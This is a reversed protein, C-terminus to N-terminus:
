GRLSELQSWSRGCGILERLQGEPLQDPQRGEPLEWERVACAGRLRAVARGRGARGAADGDLLLAVGAAFREGLLRAPQEYLDTGMLAVVNEYGAQYVKLCDFFGEVVVVTECNTAAARHFNFLVQSKGFGGPFKYRPESGELSRGAYGVLRGGEDHIPIVVWGKMLEGKMLEPGPYFGVGFATATRTAIGRASLYAHASDVGRLTFNLPPNFVVKRKTVRPESREWEEGPAAGGLGDSLRVAAERVTGHEWLAVFDLLDGGAGCSFCHFIKRKVDVHFAERGEGQHLPCRGRYRGGRGGQLGGIQYRRLVAEFSV